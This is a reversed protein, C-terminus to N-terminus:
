DRVRGRSEKIRARAKKEEVRRIQSARTPRTARRPTPRALANGLKDALAALAAARNSSQSRSRSSSARVRPGLREVLLGRDEESLVKSTTVDFSVVVKTMARNAHQGGPGGSTSVRVDIEDVPITLRARLHLSGDDNVRVVSM